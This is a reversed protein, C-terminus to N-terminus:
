IANRLSNYQGMRLIDSGFQVTAGSNSIMPSPTKIMSKPQIVSIKM